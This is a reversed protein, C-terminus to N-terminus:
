RRPHSPKSAGGISIEVIERLFGIPRSKIAWRTSLCRRSSIVDIDPIGTVDTRRVKSSRAPM